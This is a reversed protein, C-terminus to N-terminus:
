DFATFHHFAELSLKLKLAVTEPLLVGQSPARRAAVRHPM